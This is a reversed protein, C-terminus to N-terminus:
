GAGRALRLAASLGRRGRRAAAGSGDGSPSPRSLLLVVGHAHGLSPGGVSALAVAARVECQRERLELFARVAVLRLAGMPRTGGAAVVAAPRAKLELGGLVVLRGRGSGM